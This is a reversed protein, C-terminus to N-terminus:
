SAARKREARRKASAVRQREARLRWKTRQRMDRLCEALTWSKVTIAIDRATTM